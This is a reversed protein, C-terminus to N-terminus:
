DVDSAVSPNTGEVIVSINFELVGSTTCQITGHRGFADGSVAGSRLDLDSKILAEVEEESLIM